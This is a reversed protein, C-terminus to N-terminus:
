TAVGVYAALNNSMELHAKPYPFEAGHECGGSRRSRCPALSLAYDADAPALELAGVARYCLVNYGAITSVTPDGGMVDNRM